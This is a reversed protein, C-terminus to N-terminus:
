GAVHYEITGVLVTKNGAAQLISELLFTTTTKGNTGTIGSLQLKRAPEGFYRASMAALARRGHQVRAWAVGERPAQEASDTVVAVAGNAVAADIYRNGDTAEGRMAVFVNGPRIRRSDHELGTIAPNGGLPSQAALDGVLDLFTM